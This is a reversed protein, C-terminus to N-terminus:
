HLATVRSFHAMLKRALPSCIREGTCKSCENIIQRYPLIINHITVVGAIVDAAARMCICTM